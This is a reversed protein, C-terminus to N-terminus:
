PPNSFHWDVLAPMHAAAEAPLDGPRGIVVPGVIEPDAQRAVVQRIREALAEAPERFRYRRALVTRGSWSWGLWGPVAEADDLDLGTEEMVERRMNAVVDVSGGAVDDPEFSGAAFYVKGANATHPGMRVAILAGDGSVLMASAFCHYAGAPSGARWHLFTAFRAEHGVGELRGNALRIDSFLVIRGDFLAPNRAIERSWRADIAARHGTEYPHPDGSVRLAPADFTFVRELPVAGGQGSM